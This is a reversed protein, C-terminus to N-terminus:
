AARRQASAVIRGAEASYRDIQTSTYGEAILEDRTLGIGRELSIDAMEQAINRAIVPNHHQM